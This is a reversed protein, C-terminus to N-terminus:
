ASKRAHRRGFAVGIVMAMVGLLSLTAPEPIVEFRGTGNAVDLPSLTFNFRAQISSVAGAIPDGLSGSATVSGGSSISTTGILQTYLTSGNYTPLFVGTNAGVPSLLAGNTSSDTLTVEATASASPNTIAPFSVVASSISFTTTSSGATAVFSVSAVPDGDLHVMLDDISGILTQEADRLEIPESQAYDVMDPSNPPVAIQWIGRGDTNVAEITILNGIFDARAAVPAIVAVFAGLLVVRLHSM